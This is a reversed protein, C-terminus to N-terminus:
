VGARPPAGRGDRGLATAVDPAQPVVRHLGTTRLLWLARPHPCVVRIRGQRETVRQHAHALLGLGACDIFTVPTLDIVLSPRDHRTADDLYPRVQLAAAIDIEDHLELVVHEDVHYM